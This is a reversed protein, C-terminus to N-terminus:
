EDEEEDEDEDEDSDVAVNAFQQEEDACSHLETCQGRSAVNHKSHKAAVSSWTYLVAQPAPLETTIIPTWRYRM